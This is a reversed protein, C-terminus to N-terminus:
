IIMRRRQKCLVTAITEGAPRLARHARVSKVRSMAPRFQLHGNALQRAAGGDVDLSKALVLSHALDVCDTPAGPVIAQEILGCEPADVHDAIQPRQPQGHGLDTLDSSDIEPFRVLGDARM